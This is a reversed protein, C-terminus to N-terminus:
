AEAPFSLMPVNVTNTGSSTSTIVGNTQVVFLIDVANSDVLAYKVDGTPSNHRYGAPLTALTGSSGYVYSGTLFVIGNRKTYYVGSTGLQTWTAAETRDVWEATVLAKAGTTNIDTITQTASIRGAGDIAMRESGDTWFELRDDDMEYRIRGKNQTTDDGLWIEAESNGVLSVFCRNNESSKFIATTGSSPSWSETLTGNEIVIRKGDFTVKASGVANGNADFVPIQTNSGSVKEV